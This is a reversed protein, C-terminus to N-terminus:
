RLEPVEGAEARRLWEQAVEVRRQTLGAARAQQVALRLHGIAAEQQGAVLEAQGLALTGSPTWRPDGHQERLTLSIALHAMAQDLQVDEVLHFFGIHRHIESRTLADGHDEALALAERFYPVAAAWDRRLVQHVLGVGFLSEAIGADDGIERRIALAQQFLAEEAAPDATDLGGDLAQFHMLMGLRDIAAAETFRDGAASARARASDLLDAAGAYEGTRFAGEVMADVGAALLEAASEPTQM